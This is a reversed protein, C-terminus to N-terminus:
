TLPQTKGIFALNSVTTLMTITIDLFNIQSNQEKEITFQIKHHINNFDALTNNINTNTTDFIILIDDVYRHYSIVKHKTLIHM